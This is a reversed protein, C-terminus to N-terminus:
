ALRVLRVPDEELALQPLEPERAPVLLQEETEIADRRAKADIWLEGCEPYQQEHRHACVDEAAVLLRREGICAPDIAGDVTEVHQNRHDMQAFGMVFEFRGGVPGAVIEIEVAERTEQESGHQDSGQGMAPDLQMASGAPRRGM